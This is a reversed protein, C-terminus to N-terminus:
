YSLLYEGSGSGGEEDFSESCSDADDRDHGIGLWEEEEDDENESEETDAHKTKKNSAIKAHHAKRKKSSACLIPTEFSALFSQGHGELISLLRANEEADTM